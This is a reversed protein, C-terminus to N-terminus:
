RKQLHIQIGVSLQIGNQNYYKTFGGKYKVDEKIVRYGLLVELGITPNFFIEPGVSFTLNSLTGTSPDQKRWWQIGPQYVVETAINFPKRKNLLYYRAFPGFWFRTPGITQITGDKNSGHYYSFAPTLGVVFKDIVFYGIKATANIEFYHYDSWGLSPDPVTYEQTYAKFSGAGGVLWMKKNLQSHANPIFLLTSILLLLYRIMLLHNSDNITRHM